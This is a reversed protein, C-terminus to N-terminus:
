CGEAPRNRLAINRYAHTRLNNHIKDTKVLEYLEEFGIELERGKFYEFVRSVFDFDEKYDVTWRMESYDRRAFFNRIQFHEPRTYMGFTVHEKEDADTEYEMLKKLAGSRVVEIDLGDPFTPPNTNSLLDCPNENFDILMENILSPMVLPCDATLRLFNEPKYIEVAAQYRSLVDDSSGRFASIGISQLYGFLKDDSEERTTVVVLGDINSKMIRSIQWYIMPKGNIERLVKGPLRTSDMRAQLIAITNKM